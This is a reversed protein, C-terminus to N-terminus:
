TTSIIELLNYNVHLYNIKFRKWSSSTIIKKVLNSVFCQECRNTPDHNLSPFYILIFQQMM